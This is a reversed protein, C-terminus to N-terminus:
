RSSTIVQVCSTREAPTKAVNICTAQNIGILLWMQDKLSDNQMKLDSNQTKIAQMDTQLMQHSLQMADMKTDVKSIFFWLLVAAAVIPFGINFAIKAWRQGASDGNSEVVPSLPWTSNAM